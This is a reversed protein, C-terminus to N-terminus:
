VGLHKLFAQWKESDIGFDVYNDMARLGFNNAAIWDVVRKIGRQEAEDLAKNITAKDRESLPKELLYITGECSENQAV